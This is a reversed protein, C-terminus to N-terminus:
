SGNEDPNDSFTVISALHIIGSVGKVAEDFAGEAVMDPVEVAEFKGKGYNADFREYLWNAKEKSRVTGRVTYGAQLVQDAVHAGIFGNAGTVLVISGKAITSMILSNAQEM